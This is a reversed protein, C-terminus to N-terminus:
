ITDDLSIFSGFDAAEKDLGSYFKYVQLDFDLVHLDTM